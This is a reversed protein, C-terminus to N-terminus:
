IIIQNDKIPQALFKILDATTLIVKAMNDDPKVSILMNNYLGVMRAYEYEINERNVTNNITNSM